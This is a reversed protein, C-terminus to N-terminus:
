LPHSWCQHGGEEGICATYPCFCNGSPSRREDATTWTPPRAPALADQLSGAPVNFDDPSFLPLPICCIAHCASVDASQRLSAEAVDGFIVPRAEVTSFENQEPSMLPSPPMSPHNAKAPLRRRRRRCLRAAIRM